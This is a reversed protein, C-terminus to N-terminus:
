SGLIVMLSSFMVNTSSSLSTFSPISNSQITNTNSTSSIGGIAQAQVFVPSAQAPVSVQPQAEVLVAAAKKPQFQLSFVGCVVSMSDFYPFNKACVEM